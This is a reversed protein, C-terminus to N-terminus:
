LYGSQVFSHDKRLRCEHGARDEHYVDHYDDDYHIPDDCPDDAAVPQGRRIRAAEYLEQDVGSLASIYIIASWGITQWLGSLVYIPVFYNKNSLLSLSGDVLGLSSLMQTIFGNYDVFLRVMSCIVVMSIFHPLYM